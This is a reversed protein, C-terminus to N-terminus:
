FWTPSPTRWATATGPGIKFSSRHPLFVAGVTNVLFFDQSGRGLFDGLGLGM